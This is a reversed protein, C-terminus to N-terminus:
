VAQRFPTVEIKQWVKGTVYPDRELWADLEARTPFEVVCASGIMRGDDDLLAGGCIMRGQDKLVRVQELHAQRAAQRRAPAEADTGDYAVVLYQM